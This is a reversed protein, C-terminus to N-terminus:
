AQLRLTLMSSAMCSGYGLDFSVNLDPTDDFPDGPHSSGNQLRRRKTAPGSFQDLQRKLAKSQDRFAKFREVIQMHQEIKNKSAKEGPATKTVDAEIEKYVEAPNRFSDPRVTELIEAQILRSLASNLHDKSEILGSSSEHSGNTHGNSKPARSTFAHTLDAIKAYGLQMLTQVLDREATGYQNNIVELIKGSRTLNYCADSNAEYSTVRSDPDTYHYLLNQQILVGLGNRLHRPGLSTHQVLQSITCRGKTCLVVLIRQQYFHLTLGAIGCASHPQSGVSPLEGFLDNM